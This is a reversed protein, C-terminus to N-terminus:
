KEIIGPILHRSLFTLQQVSFAELYLLVFGSFQIASCPEVKQNLLETTRM